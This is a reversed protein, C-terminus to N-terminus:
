CSREYTKMVKAIRASLEQCKEVDNKSAAIMLKAALKMVLEM